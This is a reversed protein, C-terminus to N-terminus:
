KDESLVIKKEGLKGEVVGRMGDVDEDINKMRPDNQKRFYKSHLDLQQNWKRNAKTKVYKTSHMKLKEPQYLGPSFINESINKTYDNMAVNPTMAFNVKKDRHARSEASSMARAQLDEFSSDRVVTNVQIDAFHKNLLKAYESKEPTDFHGRINTHQAGFSYFTQNMNGPDAHNLSASYVGQKVDPQGMLQINYVSNRIGGKNSMSNPDSPNTATGDNMYGFASRIQKQDQNLRQYPVPYAKELMKYSDTPQNLWSQNYIVNEQSSGDIYLDTTNLGSFAIKRPVTM